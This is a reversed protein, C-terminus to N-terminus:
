LRIERDDGPSQAAGYDAMERRRFDRRRARGKLMNLLSKEQANRMSGRVAEFDGERPSTSKALTAGAVWGGAGAVSLVLVTGWVGLRGATTVIDGGLEAWSAQKDLGPGSNRIQAVVRETLDDRLM